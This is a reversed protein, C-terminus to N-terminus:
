KIFKLILLKANQVFKAERRVRTRRRSETQEIQAIKRGGLLPQLM